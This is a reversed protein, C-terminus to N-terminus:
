PFDIVTFDVTECLRFELYVPAQPPITWTALENGSGDLLRPHNLPQGGRETIEVLRRNTSDWTNFGCDLPRYWWVKSMPPDGTAPIDDRAKFIYTVDWYWAGKKETMSAKIDWCIVQGPDHFLFATSNTHYLFPWADVEAAFDSRIVKLELVEIPIPRTAPQEFTEHSSNEIINGDLDAGVPLEYREYSYSQKTPEQTPDEQYDDLATTYQCTVRWHYPDDQDQVADPECCHALNDNPHLDGRQPVSSALVITADDATSNTVVDFARVWERTCDKLKRGRRGRWTEKVSTVSM